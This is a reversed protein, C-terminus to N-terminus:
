ARCEARCSAHHAIRRLLLLGHQNRVDAFIRAVNGHIGFGPRLQRHRQDVFVLDDAHQVQLVGPAPEEGFIVLARDRRQRRLNRNRDLVRLKYSCIARCSFRSSRSRASARSSCNRKSGCDSGLSAFRSTAAFNAGARAM